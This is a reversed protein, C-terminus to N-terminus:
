RAQSAEPLTVPVTRRTSPPQVAHHVSRGAGGRATTLGAVGARAADKVRKGTAADLADRRGPEPGARSGEIM